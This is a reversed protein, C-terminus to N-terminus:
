RRAARLKEYTQFAAAAFLKSPERECVLRVEGFIGYLDTTHGVTIERDENLGTWLGALWEVSRVQNQPTAMAAACSQEGAGIIGIMPSPPPTALALSLVLGIM